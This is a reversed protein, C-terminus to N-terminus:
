RPSPRGTNMREPECVSLYKLLDERTMGGRLASALAWRVRQMASDRYKLKTSEPLAERDREAVELLISSNELLNETRFKPFNRDSKEHAPSKVESNM